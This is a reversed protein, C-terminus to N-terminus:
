KPLILKTMDKLRIQFRFVSKQHISSIPLFFCTRNHNIDFNEKFIPLEVTEIFDWYGYFYSKNEGILVIKNDELTFVSLLNTSYDFLEKNEKCFLDDPYFGNDKKLLKSDEVGRCIYFDLLNDEIKKFNINPILSIPYQMTLNLTKNM